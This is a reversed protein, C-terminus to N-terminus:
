CAAFIRDLVVGTDACLGSSKIVPHTNISGGHLNHDVSRMLKVFYFIFTNKIEGANVTISSQPVSLSVRGRGSSGGRM